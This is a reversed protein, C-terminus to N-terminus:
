RRPRRRMSSSSCAQWACGQTWPTTVSCRAPKQGAPRPTSSGSPGGWRTAGLELGTLKEFGAWRIFHGAERRHSVGDSALWEELDGQRASALTLGSSSLWDLVVVAARLRTRVVIAQAYTTETMKDKDNRNRLRRLLHWLGYRGLLRQEDLDARSGIVDTVWAELRVMQEDRVPLAGTAVLVSRLHEIPKGGATEDLTAHTLPRLGRGLKGLVNSTDHKSLWGLVSAPREAAKLNEYLAELEPRMTGGVDSLLYRLREALGCRACPGSRLQGTEGCSPCNRWLSQDAPACTACLPSDVTGGKVQRVNGCGACLAWRQQCANCWPEGTARSIECRVFRGCISCIAETAPRCAQCLPGAEPRVNVPRLRGCGVCIEQNAPDTLLCHPCLPRGEGDRTAPERVARCRSCAVARSKALCNRCRRVAGGSKILTVARGCVPCAPRVLETAGAALLEDILRLVSPVPAEAGAGTLLEPRDELAWALRRRQWARSTAAHVAAVVTEAPLLPDVAAVVGIVIELPDMGDDVPCSRCHPRGERDFVFVQRVAGCVACPAPAQGCPCCYWDEGRRQLTRLAKSCGACRPASVRQAGAKKLAILLDGIARPAPSRGNTLVAPNDALFQAIRRRKARRGAVTEVVEKVILEDLSDEVEAVLRVVVAIPDALVEPSAAIM